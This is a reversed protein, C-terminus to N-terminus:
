VNKILEKMDADSINEPLGLVWLLSEIKGEEYFHVNNHKDERTKYTFNIEKIIETKNKLGKFNENLLDNQQGLALNLSELQLIYKKVDSPLSNFVEESLKEIM